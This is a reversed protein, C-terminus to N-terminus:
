EDPLQSQIEEDGKEDKQEEGKEADMKEDGLITWREMLEKVLEEGGAQDKEDYRVDPEEESEVDDAEDDEPDKTAKGHSSGFSKREDAIESDNRKVGVRQLSVVDDEQLMDLRPKRRGLSKLRGLFGRIQQNQDSSGIRKYSREGPHVNIPRRPIVMVDAKERLQSLPVTEMKVQDSKSVDQQAGNEKRLKRTHEFLIDTEPLTMEQQILWYDPEDKLTEYPLNFYKLTDELLHIKKCKVYTPRRSFRAQSTQGNTSAGAKGPEIMAGIQNEQFGFRALRKHMEEEVRRSFKEEEMKKRRVIEREYLERERRERERFEVERKKRQEMELREREYLEKERRQKDQLEKERREQEQRVDSADRSVIWMLLTIEIDGLITSRHVPPLIELAVLHANLAATHELIMNRQPVNLAQLTDMVSISADLQAQLRTKIETLPVRLRKVGGAVVTPEPELATNTFALLEDEDNASESSVEAFGVRKVGRDPSKPKDTKPSAMSAEDPSKQDQGLVLDTSGVKDPDDKQEQEPSTGSIDVNDPEKTQGEDPSEYAQLTDDESMNNTAAKPSDKRPTRLNRFANQISESSNVDKADHVQYQFVDANEVNHSNSQRRWASLSTSKTESTAQVPRPPDQLDLGRTGERTGELTTGNTKYNNPRFMSIFASRKGMHGSKNAVTSTNIEKGTGNAIQATDHTKRTKTLTVVTATLTRREQPDVVTNGKLAVAEAHALTAVTLMLLLTDKAERLDTKLIDMRPQLFPWKAREMPSLKVPGTSAERVSLQKSAKNLEGEFDGFIEHCQNVATEADKLGQKKFITFKNGKDDVKEQMLDKLQDLVACTLSVDDAIRKIRRPATAVTEALTILELAIKTGAGAVGVISATLSLPDAM